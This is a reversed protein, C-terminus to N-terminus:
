EGGETSEKKHTLEYNFQMNKLQEVFLERQLQLEKESPNEQEKMEKLIPKKLYEAKAKKGALNREVAVTVASMLYHGNVWNMYDQQEIRKVYGDAIANITRPTMRWFDFWSVGIANAM